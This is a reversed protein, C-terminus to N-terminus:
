KKMNIKRNESVIEKLGALPTYKSFDTKLERGYLRVYEDVMKSNKHGLAHQLKKESGGQLLWNKAFTNRFIHISTKDVNRSKNYKYIISRLGDATLQKGYQNCFLFDESEGGRVKMYDRLIPLYEDSIPMEYGENNKVENLAIVKEQLDVNKIKIYRITRSRNGSALLHCTIVWNRYESFGCKTIDPKEVLRKQEDRTYGDKPIQKVTILSIHFNKAYGKEMFYYLVTRIARLYNNITNDSINASLSRKYLIFDIVHNENIQDTFEVGKENQLFDRFTEFRNAYYDVTYKSKNMATKYNNFQEFAEGLPLNKVDKMLIKRKM